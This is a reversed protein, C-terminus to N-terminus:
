HMVPPHTRIESTAQTFGVLYAARLGLLVMLVILGVMICQAVRSKSRLRCPIPDDAAPVATGDLLRRMDTETTVWTKGIKQGNMQGSRILSSLYDPHYGSMRAAQRLTILANPDDM